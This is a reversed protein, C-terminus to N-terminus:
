KKRITCQSVGRTAMITTIRIATQDWGEHDEVQSVNEYAEDPLLKSKVDEPLEVNRIPRAYGKALISKDKM